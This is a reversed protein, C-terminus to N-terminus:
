SLFLFMFFVSIIMPITTTKNIAANAAMGKNKLPVSISFVLVVMLLFTFASTSNASRLSEKNRLKGFSV